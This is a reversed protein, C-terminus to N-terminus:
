EQVKIGGGRERGEAGGEEENETGRLPKTTRRAPNSDNSYSYAAAHFGPFQDWFQHQAVHVPVRDNTSGDGPAIQVRGGTHYM